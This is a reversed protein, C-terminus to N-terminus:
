IQGAQALSARLQAGLMDDEDQRLSINEAHRIQASPRGLLLLASAFNATAAACKRYSVRRLFPYPEHM